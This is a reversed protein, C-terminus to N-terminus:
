FTSFLFFYFTFFFSISLLLGIPLCDPSDAFLGTLRASWVLSGWLLQLLFSKQHSSYYMTWVVDYWFNLFTNTRRVFNHHNRHESIEVKAFLTIVVIQSSDLGLTKELWGVAPNKWDLFLRVDAHHSPWLVREILFTQIIQGVFDLLCLSFDGWPRSCRFQPERVLSHHGCSAPQDIIISCATPLHM